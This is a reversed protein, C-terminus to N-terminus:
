GDYGNFLSCYKIVMISDYEIEEDNKVLLYGDNTMNLWGKVM